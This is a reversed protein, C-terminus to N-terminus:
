MTGLEGVGRGERVRGPVNAPNLKLEGADEKINSNEASQYTRLCVNTSSFNSPHCASSECVTQKQQSIEIARLAIRMAFLTICRGTVLAIVDHM